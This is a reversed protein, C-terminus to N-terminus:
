RGRQRLTTHWVFPRGGYPSAQMQSWPGTSRVAQLSGSMVAFLVYVFCDSGAGASLVDAGILDVLTASGAVFTRARDRHCLEYLEPTQEITM